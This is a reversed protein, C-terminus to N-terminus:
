IPRNQAVGDSFNHDIETVYSLDFSYFSKGEAQAVGFLIAPVILLLSLRKLCSPIKITQQYFIM